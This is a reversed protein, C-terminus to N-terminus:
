QPLLLGLKKKIQSELEDDNWLRIHLIPFNLQNFIKDVLEDRKKRSDRDHTSDDVEILLVPKNERCIIFDIHKSKIYNFWKMYQPNDKPISVLDAIRMKTFATLDLKEIIPKLSKYFKSEKNSFVSDNLVYPFVDEKIEQPEESEQKSSKVPKKKALNALLLFIFAVGVGIIILTNSDM